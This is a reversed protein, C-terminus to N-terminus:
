HHSVVQALKHTALFEIQVQDLVLLVETPLLLITAFEPEPNPELEVHRVALEQLLGSEGIAM